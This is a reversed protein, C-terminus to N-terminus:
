LSPHAQWFIDTIEAPTKCGIIRHAKRFDSVNWSVILSCRSAVASAVHLADSYHLQVGTSIKQAQNKVAASIGFNEFRVNAASLVDHVDRRQLSIVSFVEDFFLDSLVIPIARLACFAFFKGSDLFRLNLAHNIESRVYSIFVNSDVYFRMGALDTGKGSFACCASSLRM